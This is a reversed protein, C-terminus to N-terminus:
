NAGYFAIFNNAALAVGEGPDTDTVTINPYPLEITKNSSTNTTFSDVTVANNTFTITKNNASANSVWTADGRLFKSRDTTLPKVVLGTTGDAGSTAGTFTSYTTDAPTAWTGDGALFQGRNAILPKPVLGQAGDSVSTAGTFDSYATTMPEWGRYNYSNCWWIYPSVDTSRMVLYVLNNDYVYAEVEEQMLSAPMDSLEVTGLFVTGAQAGLAQISSFLQSTTGTVNVSNPFPQFAARNNKVGNVLDQVQSGKLGYTKTPDIAM